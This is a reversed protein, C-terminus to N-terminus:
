SIKLSVKFLNCVPRIRLNTAMLIDLIEGLFCRRDENLILHYKQFLIKANDGHGRGSINSNVFIGLVKACKWLDGIGEYM